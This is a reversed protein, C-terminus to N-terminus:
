DKHYEITRREVNTREFEAQPDFRASVVRETWNGVPDYTYEVRSEHTRMNEELTQMGGNEDLRMNRDRSETREHVSNGHDDYAFTTWEDRLTGMHRSREILQGDSDYSFTTVISGFAAGIMAAFQARDDPSIDRPGDKFHYPGAPAMRADETVVDGTTDRTFTVTRLLAHTADHFVVEVPRDQDDYLTTITAAGPVGYGIESGEVGCMMALNPPGASLFETKKKRGSADFVYVAVTRESGSGHREAVRELRGAADYSYSTTMPASTGVTAYTVETLRGNDDYRFTTRHVSAEAGPQELQTTRGRRDFIVSTRHRAPQWQQLERDWEAVESQMAAVPGHLKWKELDTV